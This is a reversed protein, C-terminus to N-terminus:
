TANEAKRPPLGEPMQSIKFAEILEVSEADVNVSKANEDIPYVKLDGAENKVVLGILVQGEDTLVRSSGYQDSIHNSPHVIAEVLYKEDFKYPISTLDPGIAGGLGKLRHCSACKASFFLSRGREFSKKGASSALAAAVTWKQGPGEPETIPFDPKPNFDEGTIEKLAVRQEASCSALAEDRIRTLYGAYSAGGSAKAAENLFMFYARRQDLTWGDRLNRLLYAYLIERSPPPSKIMSNIRGGYGKNRSALETWPPPEPTKRNGILAIAKGIVSGNRLYSLVRILETNVDASEHPLLPDLQESIAAAEEVTPKGLRNFVLAYGRLMGLLRSEGLSGADLQLLGSIASERHSLDGM